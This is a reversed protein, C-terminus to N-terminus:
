RTGIVEHFLRDYEEQSILKYGTILKIVENNGCWVAISPHHRLRRVQDTVEARVNDQFEPNNGPYPACAFMFDSWVLIGREDCADYFADDPYYGGGWVRIMNMGVAAADDIIRHLRPATVSAPFVDAPVFNAGKCFIERGNVALRLPGAASKPLLKMERLGIRRERTDLVQGAADRLQVAVTYLPQDGMGNPWWLRPQPVRLPISARDGPLATRARDIVKGGFMVVAEATLRAAGTRGATVEVDLRASNPNGLAQGIRLDEIRATDYAIISIPRYIGCPLFRATFDWSNSYPAKRINAIDVGTANPVKPARRRFADIYPQIPSFTVRIENGGPKLRRKVDFEWTRYMNDTNALHEGNVEIRAVTDLGECRLLVVDKAILEPSLDFNRTFEWTAQHVWDMTAANDRFFPDPLRGARILDLHVNGPVKAPLTGPQGAQALTWDGALDHSELAARSGSSLALALAAVFPIFRRM